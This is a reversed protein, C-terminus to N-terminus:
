LVIWAAITISAIIVGGAVLVYAPWDHHWYYDTARDIVSREPEPEIIRRLERGYFVSGTGARPPRRRLRPVDDRHPILTITM